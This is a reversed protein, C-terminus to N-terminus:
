ANGWEISDRDFVIRTLPPRPGRSGPYPLVPLRVAEQQQAQLYRATYDVTDPPISDPPLTDGPLQGEIQAALFSTFPSLHLTFLIVSPGWWRILRDMR